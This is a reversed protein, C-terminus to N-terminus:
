KKYKAWRGDGVKDLDLADIDMRLIDLDDEDLSRKPLMVPTPGADFFFDIDAEENFHLDELDPLNNM